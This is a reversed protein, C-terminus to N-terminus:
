PCSKHSYQMRTLTDMKGLEAKKAEYSKLSSPLILISLVAFIGIYGAIQWRAMKCDKNEINKCQMPCTRCNTYGGINGVGTSAARRTSNHLVLGLQRLSFSM